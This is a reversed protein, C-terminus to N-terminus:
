FFLKHSIILCCSTVWLCLNGLSSSRDWRRWWRSWFSRIFSDHRTEKNMRECSKLLTIKHFEKLMREWEWGKFLFSNYIGYWTEWLKLEIFEYFYKFILTNLKALEHWCFSLDDLSQNDLCLIFPFLEFIDICFFLFSRLFCLIISM